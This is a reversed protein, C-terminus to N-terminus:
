ESDEADDAKPDVAFGRAILTEASVKDLEVTEGNDPIYVGNMRSARLLNGTMRVVMTEAKAM